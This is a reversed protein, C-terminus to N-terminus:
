ARGIQNALSRDMLTALDATPDEGVAFMVAIAGGVVAGALSRVRPDDAGRGTRDGMVEALLHMADAFQDLMAARLETVALMLGIRESLGLREEPTPEPFLDLFAARIAQSASPFRQM